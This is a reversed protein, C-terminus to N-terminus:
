WNRVVMVTDHQARARGGAARNCRMHEPALPLPCTHDPHGLDWPEGPHIYPDDPRLCDYGYRRCRIAGTAVDHEWEARRRQHATGYGRATTGGAKPM